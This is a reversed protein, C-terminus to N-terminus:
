AAAPAATDSIVNEIQVYQMLESLLQQMSEVTILETPAELLFIYEITNYYFDYYVHTEQSSSGDDLLYNVTYAMELMTGMPTERLIGNHLQAIRTSSGTEELMANEIEDYRPAMEVEKEFSENTCKKLQIEFIMASESSVQTGWLHSDYVYDASDPTKGENMSELYQRLYTDNVKVLFDPIRLSYGLYTDSYETSNEETVHPITLSLEATCLAPLLALMLSLIACVTKKM